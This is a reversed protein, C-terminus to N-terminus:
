SEKPYYHTIWEYEQADDNYKKIHGSAIEETIDFFIGYSGKKWQGDIFSLEFYRTREKPDVINVSLCDKEKPVYEFDFSHINENLQKCIAEVTIGNLLDKKPLIIKIRKASKRPGLSRRLYWKYYFTRKDTIAKKSRNFNTCFIFHNKPQSM